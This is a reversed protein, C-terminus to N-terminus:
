VYKEETLDLYTMFVYCYTFLNLFSYLVIQVVRGQPEYMFHAHQYISDFIMPCIFTLVILLTIFGAKRLSIKQLSSRLPDISRDTHFQPHFFVFLPALRYRADMIFGPIIFVLFWLSTSILIRLQATLYELFNKMVFPVFRQQTLGHAKGLHYYIIFGLSASYLAWILAQWIAVVIRVEIDNFVPLSQIPFLDIM